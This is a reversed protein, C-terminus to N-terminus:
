PRPSVSSSRRSPPAPSTASSRRRAPTPPAVAGFVTGAIAIAGYKAGKILTSKDMDTREAPDIIKSIILSSPTARRSCRQYETGVDRERAAVLMAQLERHM